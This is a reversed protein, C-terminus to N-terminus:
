DMVTAFVDPDVASITEHRGLGVDNVIGPVHRGAVLDNALAQTKDRSV